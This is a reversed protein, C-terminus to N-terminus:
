NLARQLPEGRLLALMRKGSSGDLLGWRGSDRRQFEALEERRTANGTIDCLADRFETRLNVLQVGRVGRYDEYGYQYVDYNIVPKGCTIAWRITASVAAIYLDCLPVLSATDDYSVALGKRRLLDVRESATKPHPRVVVNWDKIEALRDGWFGVLDDFNAFECSPRNYTNQDPPLACLLLPREVSLGHREALARRRRPAEAMAMTMVDDTMSGTTV